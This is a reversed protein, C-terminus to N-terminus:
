LRKSIETELVRYNLQCRTFSPQNSPSKPGGMKNFIM